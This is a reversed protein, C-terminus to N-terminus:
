PKGFISADIPASITRKVSGKYLSSVAAFILMYVPIEVFTLHWFYYEFFGFVLWSVMVCYLTLFWPNDKSRCVLLFCSYFIAAVGLIYILTPFPGLYLYLTGLMTYVNAGQFDAFTLDINMGLEHPSGVSVLQGANFMQRYLNIFPSFIEYWSGGVSGVGTRIAESLALVGSWLYYLYHRALEQYIESDTLISPDAFSLGLLYVANFLLYTIAVAALLKKVSLNLHGRAARFVMGGVLPALLTGKVQSALLFLLLAGITVLQLKRGKRYTGVLLVVLPFALVVAHSSIGQSYAQKFDLSGIGSWGGAAAMAKYFNFVMLPMIVWAVKVALRTASDEPFSMKSTFGASQNGTQFDFLLGFVLGVGWFFFLGVIWILVSPTYVSVFGLLPAFLFASVAVMLYPYGLLNFPTLWTGFIRRDLWSLILVELILSIIIFYDMSRSIM